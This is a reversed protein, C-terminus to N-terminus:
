AAVGEAERLPWAEVESALILIKRGVKLHRIRNGRIAEYISSKGVVGDLRNYFETPTILTKTVLQQTDTLKIDDQM